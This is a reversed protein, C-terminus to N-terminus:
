IREGRLKAKKVAALAIRQIVTKGEGLARIEGGTIQLNITIEIQPKGFLKWWLKRLM